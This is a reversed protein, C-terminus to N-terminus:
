TLAATKFWAGATYICIKKNTTDFVWPVRGTFATPVGTPTGACSPMYVFGNTANTALAATGIIMNSAAIEVDPLSGEHGVVILDTGAKFGLIPIVTPGSNRTAQYFQGNGLTVGGATLMALANGDDLFSFGTGGSGWAIRRVGAVSGLAFGSTLTDNRIVGDAVIGYGPVKLDPM